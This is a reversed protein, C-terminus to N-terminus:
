LVAQPTTVFIGSRSRGQFGASGDPLPGFPPMSTQLSINPLPGGVHESEVLSGSRFVGGSRILVRGAARRSNRLVDM